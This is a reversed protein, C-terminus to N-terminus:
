KKLMVYQPVEIFGSNILCVRNGILKGYQFILLLSLVVLTSGGNFLLPRWRNYMIDGSTLQNSNTDYNAVTLRIAIYKNRYYLM